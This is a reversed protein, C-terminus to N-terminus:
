AKFIIQIIFQPSRVLGVEYEGLFNKPNNIVIEAVSLM